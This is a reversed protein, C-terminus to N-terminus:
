WPSGREDMTSPSEVRTMPPLCTFIRAHYSLSHPKELRRTSRATNISCRPNHGVDDILTVVGPTRRPSCTALSITATRTPGSKRMATTPAGDYKLCRGRGLVGWSRAPCLQMLIRRGVYPPRNGQSTSLSPRSTLTRTSPWSTHGAKPNITSANRNRSHAEEPQLRRM